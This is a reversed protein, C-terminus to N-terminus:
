NLYAKGAFPADTFVQVINADVYQMDALVVNGQTDVVTIAPYRNLNHPITWVSLPVTQEWTFTSANGAPGRPGVLVDVFEAPAETPETPILVFEPIARTFTLEIMDNM